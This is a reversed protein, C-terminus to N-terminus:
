IFDGKGSNGFLTACRRVSPLLRGQCTPRGRQGNTQAKDNAKPEGAQKKMTKNKKEEAM